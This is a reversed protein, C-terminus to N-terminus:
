CVYVAGDTGIFQAIKKPSDHQTHSIYVSKILDDQINEKRLKGFTRKFCIVTM